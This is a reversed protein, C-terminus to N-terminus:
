VRRVSTRGITYFGDTLATEKIALKVPREGEFLGVAVEYDGAPVGTANVRLDLTVPTDPLWTRNDAELPIVYSGQEGRLRLKLDFPHYARAWGRNEIDLSIINYATDTLEPLVAGTIFYWYGLRNACYETLYYENELWRRPYGHFGAFTAHASKFAEMATLGDRFYSEYRPKIYTYHAMEIVNPAEDALRDFAWPARMTDYGNMQFYYDCCISDDQVGFGRDAAYDLVSQVEGQGLPIRGVMHDDNCVVFTDPFYKAHLDFHRKVVDLPYIVGDGEVTHGEGWTGYTGVDVLEIRPDGNYKEGLAALFRELCSLFIPDGFDPQIKGEELEYCRAGKEYVYAPTAYNLEAIGEYAVARLAFTYGLPGWKDMIEDLCSFDYVGETKEVDGWDFRLYLHNLGPFDLLHDDPDHGARYAPRGFGNDVYHWFWGKHPNRLVTKDDVLLRLDVFNKRVTRDDTMFCLTQVEKDGPADIINSFQKESM